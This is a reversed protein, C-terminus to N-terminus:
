GCGIHVDSRAIWAPYDSSEEHGLVLGPPVPADTLFTDIGGTFASALLHTPGFAEFCLSWCIADAVGVEVLEVDCGAAPLDGNPVAELAGDGLRYRRTFLRKEIAVTGEIRPVETAGVPRTLKLWDAVVGELGTALRDRRDPTVRFKADISRGDRNKVGVGRRACAVDYHDVRESFTVHAAGDIFWEITPPPLPGSRFWRVERTLLAHM